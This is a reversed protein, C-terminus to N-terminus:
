AGSATAPVSASVDPALAVARTMASTRNAGRAFVASAYTRQVAFWTNRKAAFFLSLAGAVVFLLAFFAMEWMNGRVYVEMTPDQEVLQRLSSSFLVASAAQAVGLAILGVGNAAVPLSRKDPTAGDSGRASAWAASFAPWAGGVATGWALAAWGVLLMPAGAVGSGAAVVLWTVGLMMFVRVATATRRQAPTEVFMTASALLGFVVWLAM